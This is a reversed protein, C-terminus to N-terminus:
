PGAKAPDFLRGWFINKGAAVARSFGHGSVFRGNDHDRVVNTMGLAALFGAKFDQCGLVSRSEEAM